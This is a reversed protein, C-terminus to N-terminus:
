FTLMRREARQGEREMKSVEAEQEVEEPDEPGIPQRDGALTGTGRLVALSARVDGSEVAASVTEVAANV